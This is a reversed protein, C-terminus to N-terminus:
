ISDPSILFAQVHVFNYNVYKLNWKKEFKYKHENLSFNLKFIQHM